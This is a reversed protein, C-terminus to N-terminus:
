RTVLRWCNWPWRMVRSGHKLSYTQRTIRCRELDRSTRPLRMNHLAPILCPVGGTRTAVGMETSTTPYEPIDQHAAQQAALQAARENEQRVRNQVPNYGGHQDRRQANSSLAESETHRSYSPSRNQRPPALWPPPTSHIMDPSYSYTEQQALAMQLLERVRRTEVATPDDGDMPLAALRASAAILNEMPNSFHGKPIPVYRPPAMSVHPPPMERPQVPGGAGATM